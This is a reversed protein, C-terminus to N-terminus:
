QKFAVSLLVSKSYCKADGEFTLKQEEHAGFLEFWRSDRYM